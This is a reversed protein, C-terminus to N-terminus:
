CIAGAILERAFAIPAANWYSPSAIRVDIARVTRVFCVSALIASVAARFLELAFQGLLAYRGPIKAISLFITPYVGVVALIKRIFVLLQAYTDATFSWFNKKLAVLLKLSIINVLELPSRGKLYIKNKLLDVM